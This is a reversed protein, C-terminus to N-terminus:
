SQRAPILAVKETDSYKEAVAFLAERCLSYYIRHNSEPNTTVSEKELCLDVTSLPFISGIDRM